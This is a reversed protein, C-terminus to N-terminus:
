FDKRSIYGKSDKDIEAFLMNVQDTDKINLLDDVLTAFEDVEVTGSRDADVTDFVEDVKMGANEATTRLKDFCLAANLIALEAHIEETSIDQSNDVDIAKFLVRCEEHDLISKLAQNFHHINIEKNRQGKFIAVLDTLQWEKKLMYNKLKEKVKVVMAKEAANTNRMGKVGKDKGIKQGFKKFLVERFYFRAGIEHEDFFAETEHSPIRLKNFAKTLQSKTLCLM